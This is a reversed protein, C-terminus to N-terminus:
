NDRAKFLTPHHCILIDKNGSYNYVGEVLCVWETAVQPEDNSSNNLEKSMEISPEECFLGGVAKTSFQTVVECCLPLVRLQVYRTSCM